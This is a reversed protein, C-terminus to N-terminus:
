IDLPQLWASAISPECSSEVALQVAGGAGRRVLVGRRRGARHRAAGDRGARRQLAEAPEGAAGRRRHHLAGRQLPVRQNQSCVKFGHKAANLKYLGVVSLMRGEPTSLPPVVSAAAVAAPGSAAAAKAADADAFGGGDLEIDGSSVGDYDV